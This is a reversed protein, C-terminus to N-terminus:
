KPRHNGQLGHPSDHRDTRRRLLRRLSAVDNSDLSLTSGFKRWSRSSKKCGLIAFTDFKTKRETKKKDKQRKTM